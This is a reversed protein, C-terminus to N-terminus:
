PQPQPSNKEGGASTARLTPPTTLDLDLRQERSFRVFAWHDAFTCKYHSELRNLIIRRAQDVCTSHKLLEVLQQPSLRNAFPEQATRLVASAAFPHGTGAMLGVASAVSSSRRTQERPDLRTLVASLGTAWSGPDVSEPLKRMAMLKLYNAAAQFCVRAAEEPEMRAALASLADPHVWTPSETLSDALIAAARACARAAEGPELRSALDSLVMAQRPGLVENTKPLAALLLDAAPRCARAAEKPDLRGVLTSLAKASAVIDSASFMLITTDGHAQMVRRTQLDWAKVLVRSVIAAARAADKPEMQAALAAAGEILEQTFPRDEMRAMAQLVSAIAQSYVQRAETDELYPAIALIGQALVGRSYLWFDSKDEKGMARALMAAAKPCVRAAEEPEMRAAVRSLAEAFSVMESPHKAQEMAQLLTISADQAKMRSAAASFGRILQSSGTVMHSYAAPSYLRAAEKPDMQPSIADLGSLLLSLEEHNTTKALEAALAAAAKAVAQSDLKPALAALSSALGAFDAPVKKTKALEETLVAAAKAAESSELYPAVAKIGQTWVLLFRSREFPDRIRSTFFAAAQSCIRAADRPNMRAALAALADPKRDRSSWGNMERLVATGARAAEEPEIYPALIILSESFAEVVWSRSSNANMTTTLTAAARSCVRTAEEPEMVAALAALGHAVPEFAAYSSKALTGCLIAAAQSCVRAAEEPEMRATLSALGNALERLASPDSEKGLAEVLTRAVLVRATPTLGGLSVAILALSGRQGDTLMPDQVRECLLREVQLRKGPDLGVAAHLAVGARNKLQRISMPDRLAEQVFRKWIDEGPSGTLEWLSGVEADTLPGPQLALPRLLSRALTTEVEDRKHKLEKNTNELNAKAVVADSENKRAAEASKTAEAAQWVAVVTGAVLALSVLVATGLAARNRRYAKRLRYAASPPVALVPEGALHRRVDMALGNASEYRRNRDKELAKMVIWDLEGRVLGTLRKPEAQRNAALSPLSASASLRASPRPPEEERILRKMEEWAAERLRKKELPTTGTLLEYLIVGLAYIDTRTDVDLANIGVQEPAM